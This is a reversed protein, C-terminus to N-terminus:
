PAPLACRDPGATCRPMSSSSPMISTSCPRATHCRATSSGSSRTTARPAEILGVRGLIRRTYADVVFVPVHFAYLLISDATEPGIGWEALLAERAPAGAPGLAGPRAFLAAAVKLKKSKQNFYGSSRVLGSLRRLPLAIVDRPRRVGAERLRALAAAANTWATNQTLVAGMIVEFRDAPARPHDFLERHYGLSDFGRRRAKGPIPWWGQTGYARRLQRYLTSLRAAVTSRANTRGEVSGTAYSAESSCFRWPSASHPPFGTGLRTYLTSRAALPVDVVLYNEKYFATRARIRGRTDVFCTLGSAAARVLPRGNEV